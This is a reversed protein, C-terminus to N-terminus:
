FNLSATEINDEYFSLKTRYKGLLNSLLSGGYGRSYIDWVDQPNLVYNYFNINSTWGSFGGDPTININADNDIKPVGPLLCTRVLKGDVYIDLTRNNVVTVIHVWKQMKINKVSCTHLTPGDSTSQGYCQVDVSLDNTTNALYIKPNSNSEEDMRNLIVKQEGYKYNWDDLYIWVSYSYNTTSSEIESSNINVETKGSVFSSLKTKNVFSSWNFIILLVLILIVLIIIKKASSKMSSVFGIYGGALILIILVITMFTESKM